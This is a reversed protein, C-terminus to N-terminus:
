QMENVFPAAFFRPWWRYVRRCYAEYEDGFKRRLAPEEYFIVFLHVAISCAIAYYLLPLSQFFLSEGLLIWLVGMYRPNRVVRYPGRVVLHKPPDIPALTGRGTAWFDWVCRLLVVAGIVMLLLGIVRWPDGQGGTKDDVIFYPIVVTVTGPFLLTFFISRLLLSPSPATREGAPNPAPKSDVKM